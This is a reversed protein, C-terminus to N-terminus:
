LDLDHGWKSMLLIHIAIGLKWSFNLYLILCCIISLMSKTLYSILEITTRKDWRWIYLAQSLQGNFMSKIILQLPNTLETWKRLVFHGCKKLNGLSPNKWVVKSHIFLPIQSLCNRNYNVLSWQMILLHSVTGDPTRSLTIKIRVPLPVYRCDM